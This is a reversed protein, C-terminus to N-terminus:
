PQSCGAIQPWRAIWGVRYAYNAPCPPISGITQPPVWAPFWPFFYVGNGDIQRALENAPTNAHAKNSSQAALAGADACSSGSM